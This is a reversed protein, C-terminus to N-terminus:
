YLEYYNSNTSIGVSQAAEVEFCRLELKCNASRNVSFAFGDEM